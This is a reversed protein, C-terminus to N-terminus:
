NSCFICDIQLYHYVRATIMSAMKQLSQATLVVTISPFWSLKQRSKWDVTDHRIHWIPWHIVTIARIQRIMSIHAQQEQADCPCLLSFCHNSDSSILVYRLPSVNIQPPPPPPTMKEEGAKTSSLCPFCPPPSLDVQPQVCTISHCLSLSLYWLCLPLSLVTMELDQGKPPKSQCAKLRALEYETSCLISLASSEGDM